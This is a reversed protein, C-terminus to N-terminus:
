ADTYWIRFYGDLTTNAPSTIRAVIQNTNISTSIGTSYKSVVGLPLKHRLNAGRANPTAGAHFFKTHLVSFDNRAIANSYAHTPNVGANNNIVLDVRFSLGQDQTLIYDISWIKIKSGIRDAVSSGQGVNNIPYSAGSLLTYTIPTVLNKMEPKIGRYLVMPTDRRPRTNRTTGGFDLRRKAVM